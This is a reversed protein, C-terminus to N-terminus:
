IFLDDVKILRKDQKNVLMIEDGL